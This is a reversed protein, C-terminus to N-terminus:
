IDWDNSVPSNQSLLKRGCERCCKLHMSHQSSISKQRQFSSRVARCTQSPRFRFTFIFFYMFFIKHVYVIRTGRFLLVVSVLNHWLTVLISPIHVPCLPSYNGEFRKFSSALINAFKKVEAGESQPYQFQFTLKLGKEKLGWMSGTICQCKQYYYLFKPHM